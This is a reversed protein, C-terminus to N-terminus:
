IRQSETQTNPAENSKSTIQHTTIQTQIVTQNIVSSSNQKTPSQVPAQM